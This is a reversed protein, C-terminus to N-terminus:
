STHFLFPTSLNVGTQYFGSVPYRPEVERGAYVLNLAPRKYKHAALGNDYSAVGVVQGTPGLARIWLQRTIGMIHIGSIIV